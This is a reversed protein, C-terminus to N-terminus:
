RPAKEPRKGSTNQPACARRLAGNASLTLPPNVPGMAFSIDGRPTLKIATPQTPLVVHRTLAFGGYANQTARYIASEGSQLSAAFVWFASATQGLPVQGVPQVAMVAQPGFLSKGFLELGLGSQNSYRVLGGANPRSYGALWGGSARAGSTLWARDATFRGPLVAPDYFPMASAINRFNASDIKCFAQRPELTSPRKVLSSQLKFVAKRPNPSKLAEKGLSAAARVLTIPHSKATTNLQLFLASDAASGQAAKALIGAVTLRYDGQSNNAETAIEQALATDFNGAVETLTIKDKPSQAATRLPRLWVDVNKNDMLQPISFYASPINGDKFASLALTYNARAMATNAPAAVTKKGGKKDQALLLAHFGAARGAESMEPDAALEAAFTMYFGDERLPHRHALLGGLGIAAKMEDRKLGYLTGVLAKFAAEPDDSYLATYAEIISNLDGLKLIRALVPASIDSPYIAILASLTKSPTALAARSLPGFDADQMPFKMKRELTEGLIIRSLYATEANKHDLTQIATSRVMPSLNTVMIRALIEPRYPAGARDAWMKVVRRQEAPPLIKPSRALIDLARNATTQADINDDEGAEIIRWLVERSKEGFRNFDRALVSYDFSEADHRELIGVCQILTKCSQYSAHAATNSLLRSKIDLASAAPTSVMVAMAAGGMFKIMEVRLKM